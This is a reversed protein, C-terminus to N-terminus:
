SSEAVSCKCVLTRVIHCSEADETLRNHRYRLDVFVQQKKPEIFVVVEHQRRRVRLAIQGHMKRGLVCSPLNV